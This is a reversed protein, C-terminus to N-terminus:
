SRSFSLFLSLAQTHSVSQSFSLLLFLFLFLSLSLFLPLCLCSCHSYKQDVNWFNRRRRDRQTRRWSIGIATTTIKMEINITTATTRSTTTNKDLIGQFIEAGEGWAWKEMRRWGRVPADKTCVVEWVRRAVGGGGREALLQQNGQWKETSRENPLNNWEKIGKENWKWKTKKPLWKAGTKSECRLWTMDHPTPPTSDVASLSFSPFCNSMIIRVYECVSSPGRILASLIFRENMEYWECNVFFQFFSPFFWIFYLSMWLDNAYDNDNDVTIISQSYKKVKTVM